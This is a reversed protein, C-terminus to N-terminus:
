VGEAHLDFGELGDLLFVAREVALGVGFKRHFQILLDRADELFGLSEFAAPILEVIRVVRDGDRAHLGHEVRDGARVAVRADGPCHPLLALLDLALNDFSLRQRLADLGQGSLDM